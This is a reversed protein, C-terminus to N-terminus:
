SAARDPTLEGLSGPRIPQGQDAAPRGLHGTITAIACTLPKAVGAPLRSVDRLAGEIRRQYTVFLPSALEIGLADSGLRTTAAALEARARPSRPADNLVPIIRPADIGFAVLEDVTRMLSHVGKAGAHGVVVVADARALATRALLNRDETEMVGTEAEGEVDADVDAVVHRFARCLGEVAAETARPRLAAWDRPRRLGLLLQYGRAPVTFTMGRVTAPAPAAARHAEVLETVGPIVDPAGHYMGQDARVALDALAVHGAHRPDDALSQALAQAVVSAGTGGPGTVAVLPGAWGADLAPRPGTDPLANVEALTAAHLALLAVLDGQAFDASLTAAAGLAPWDRTPGGVVVPACGANRATELLDRDVGPLTGDVLLASFSRSSALRARVEEASVCRVFDVPASGSTAWRGLEAFWPARPRALGLVRYRPSSM